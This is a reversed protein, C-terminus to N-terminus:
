CPGTPPKTKQEGLRKHNRDLNGTISMLYDTGSNVPSPSSLDDLVAVPGCLIPQPYATM